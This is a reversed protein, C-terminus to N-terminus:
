AEVGANHVAFTNAARALLQRGQQALVAQCETGFALNLVLQYLETKSPGSPYDTSEDLAEALTQVRKPSPEGALRPKRKAADWDTVMPAFTALANADCRQCAAIFDEIMSNEALMQRAQQQALLDTYRAADRLPESSYGIVTEM